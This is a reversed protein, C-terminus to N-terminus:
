LLCVSSSCFYVVSSGAGFPFDHECGCQHRVWQECYRCWRHTDRHARPDTLLLLCPLCCSLFLAQDVQHVPRHTGREGDRPFVRTSVRGLDTHQCGCLFCSIRAMFRLRRCTGVAALVEAAQGCWVVLVCAGNVRDLSGSVQLFAVLLNAASMAGLGECRLCWSVFAHQSM